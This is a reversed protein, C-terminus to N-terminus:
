KLQHDDSFAIIGPIQLHRVRRKICFFRTAINDMRKPFPILFICTYLFHMYNLVVYVTIPLIQQARFIAWCFSFM